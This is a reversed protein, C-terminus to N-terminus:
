QFPHKMVLFTDDERTSRAASAQPKGCACACDESGSCLVMSFLSFPIAALRFVGPCNDLLDVGLLGLDGAFPYRLTILALRLKGAQNLM